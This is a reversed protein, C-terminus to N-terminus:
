DDSEEGEAEAFPDSDLDPRLADVIIKILLGEREDADASNYTTKILRSKIAAKELTQAMAEFHQVLVGLAHSYNADALRNATASRCQAEVLEIRRILDDRDSLDSQGDATDSLTEEQKVGNARVGLQIKNLRDIISDIYDTDQPM